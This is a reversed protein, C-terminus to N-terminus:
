STFSVLASHRGTTQLIGTPGGLLEKLDVAAVALLMKGQDCTPCTTRIPHSHEAANKLSYSSLKDSLLCLTSKLRTCM